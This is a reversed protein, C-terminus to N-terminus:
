ETPLQDPTNANRVPHDAVPVEVVDVADLARHVSRTGAEFAVRLPDLCSVTWVAILPERHEATAVVASPRDFARPAEAAAIVTALTPADLAPLDVAVVLAAACGRATACELATIIGGLPGEGPHLDAVHEVLGTLGPPGVAVVVDCGADRLVAATRDVLRVGDIEILAKDRGMRTSRGGVLVAGLIAGADGHAVPSM